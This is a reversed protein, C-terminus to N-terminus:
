DALGPGSAPDGHGVQAVVEAAENEMLSSLCATAQSRGFDRFVQRPPSFVQPLPGPSPREALFARLVPQLSRFESGDM